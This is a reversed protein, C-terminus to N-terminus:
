LQSSASYLKDPSKQILGHEQMSKMIKWFTASRIGSKERLESGKIPKESKQLVALIRDEFTPEEVKQGGGEYALFPGNETEQLRIRINDDSPAARHEITLQVLNDEGNMRRLYLNSDGWAHLESSGRLSQGPREKGARKRAHHVMAVNMSYQRQLNRLWSLVKSVEGSSNEDISHLRVFPDLVLLAPQIRAVAEQLRDKDAQTDILLRPEAIVHLDLDVIDLNLSSVIGSVRKRIMALSDEAAYLLVPGSRKVIYQGFCPKGSATAIALSLAAFTKFSKPEGGIIGVGGDLWLGEILWDPEKQVDGLDSAKLIKLSM